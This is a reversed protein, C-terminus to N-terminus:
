ARRSDGFQLPMETTDTFQNISTALDGTGGCDPCPPYGTAPSDPNQRLWITTDVPLRGSPDAEALRAFVGLHLNQEIDPDLSVQVLNRDAVAQLFRRHRLTAPHNPDATKSTQHLLGLAIPMKLANLRSTACLPTSQSTVTNRYGERLYAQYRSRQACRICAPTVGPASFTVEVGRGEWYVTAGLVPIGLQLGLRSIRAQATFSDTFACLLHSSPNLMHSGPLHGVALRRVASDSLAELRSKVVWVRTHPSVNTLRKAITRAKGEGIDSRYVQQTGINPAEVVDPDVLVFEGIGARAMDELFAASGGCGIAVLRAAAMAPLDYAERVRTFEPFQGPDIPRQPAAIHVPIDHMVTAAGIRTAAYGHVTFAGTDPVTQVIPTIFRDLEPIADLIQTAYRLDQGSPRTNGAPHSHVFGVLNIGAPNWEDRFMRNMEQHDPYYQVGNTAATPDFHFHKVVSAGRAGGLAGGNEARRSGITRGIERLVEATIVLPAAANLEAADLIKIRHDQSTTDPDATNPAPRRRLDAWIWRAPNPFPYYNVLNELSREHAGAM